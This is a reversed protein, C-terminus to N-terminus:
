YIPKGRGFPGLSVLFELFLWSCAGWKLYLFNIKIIGFKKWDVLINNLCRLKIELFGLWELFCCLVICLWLFVFNFLILFLWIILFIYLFGLVCLNLQFYFCLKWVVSRFCLLYKKWIQLQWVLMNMIFQYIIFFLFLFVFLLLFLFISFFIIFIFIEFFAGETQNYKECEFCCLIIKDVLFFDFYFCFFWRFFLYWVYVFLCGVMKECSLKITLSFKSELFCFIFFIAFICFVSKLKNEFNEFVEIREKENKEFNVTKKNKQMSKQINLFRVTVIQNKCFIKCFLFCFFMIKAIRCCWVSTGVSKLESWLM